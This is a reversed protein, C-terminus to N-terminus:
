RSVKGDDEEKNQAETLEVLRRLLPLVADEYEVQGADRIGQLDDRIVEREDRLVDGVHMDTVQSQMPQAGPPKGNVAADVQKMTEHTERIQKTSRVTVYAGALAAVLVGVATLVTAIGAYDIDVAFM